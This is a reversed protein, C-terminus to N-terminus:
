EEKEYNSQRFCRRRNIYEICQDLYCSGFKSENGRWNKDPAPNDKFVLYCKKDTDLQHFHKVYYQGRRFDEQISLCKDLANITSTTSHDSLHNLKHM